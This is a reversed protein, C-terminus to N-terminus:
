RAGYRAIVGEAERMRKFLEDVDKRTERDHIEVATVREVVNNHKEVEKTLSELRVEIVAQTKSAQAHNTILCVVLTVLGTIAASIITTM